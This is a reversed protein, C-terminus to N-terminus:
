NLLETTDGQELDERADEMSEAADEVDGERMAEIAEDAHDEANDDCAAASGALVIATLVAAIRKGIM